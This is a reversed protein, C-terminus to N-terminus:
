FLFLKQSFGSKKNMLVNQKSEWATVGQTNAYDTCYIEREKWSNAEVIQGIKYFRM